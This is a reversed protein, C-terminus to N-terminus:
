RWLRTMIEKIIDLKNLSTGEKNQTTHLIFYTERRQSKQFKIEM